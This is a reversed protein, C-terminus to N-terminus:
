AKPFAKLEDAGIDNVLTLLDLRAMRLILAAQIAGDRERLSSGM